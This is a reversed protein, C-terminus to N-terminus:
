SVYLILHCIIKSGNNIAVCVCYLYGRFSVTMCININLYKQQVMSHCRCSLAKTKMQTRIFNMADWEIFLCDNIATDIGSSEVDFFRGMSNVDIIYLNPSPVTTKPSEHVHQPQHSQHTEPNRLSILMLTTSINTQKLWSCDLMVHLWRIHVKRWVRQRPYWPQHSSVTQYWEGVRNSRRWDIRSWHNRM